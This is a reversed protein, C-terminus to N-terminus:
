FVADIIPDNDVIPTNTTTNNTQTNTTNKADVVQIVNPPNDFPTGGVRMLNGNNLQASASSENADKNMLALMEDAYKGKVFATSSSKVVTTKPKRDEAALREAIQADGTGATDLQSEGSAMTENYVRKYAEAPSEGGPAIAKAAAIAGKTMAKLILGMDSIKEKLNGIMSDADFSFLDKFFQGVKKATDKILDQLSFEAIEEKSFGFVGMLAKIAADYPLFVIDMFNEINFNTKIIDKINQFNFKFFEKIKTIIGEEGVFFDKISTKVEEFKEPITITFFNKIKKFFNKIDGVLGGEGDEGVFFETIAKKADEFKQPITETFFDVIAALGPRLGIGNHGEKFFIFKFINKIVEITGKVFPLVKDVIFDTTKKYLPSDFFKKAAIMLGVLAATKLAPVLGSAIKDKVGAGLKGLGSIISKPFAKLDTRIGKFTIFNKLNQNRINADQRSKLRKETRELIREKRRFADTKKLQELSLNSNESLKALAARQLKIDEKIKNQEDLDQLSIGQAAAAIRNQEDRQKKALNIDNLNADLDQQAIKLNNKAVQLEKKADEIEKKNRTPGRGKRAQREKAQADMFAKNQKNVANLLKQQAEEQKKQSKQADIRNKEKISATLSALVGRLDEAM